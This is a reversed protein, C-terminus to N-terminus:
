PLGGSTSDVPRGFTRLMFYLALGGLILAVPAPLGYATAINGIFIGVVAVVLAYPLQTRVHDVHDCGSAMSSLVTTDSIPSCHDGFIAGALVSATAGLLIGFGPEGPHTVPGGLATTLPIVVPLMIAMTGWATGTAFATAASTVFVIAPILQLPVRESLILSLYEATGLTETVDGLSWAFVLIIMAVVMARIGAVGADIAEHVTLLKQGVSVAVAVLCGALSGWLLTDFPDAAGFVDMLSAEPGADTRGSTYLGVLVVLVVTLVPLGANRLRHSVGEKARMVTGTTDTALKANPRYLGNGANARREADVMPGFDRGMVSTLLVFFLALIPYFLYPITQVFVAFPSISLLAEAGAPNQDAAIRMGDGILSIEYGAWTSIPVLAAVPAATSDVLYALKERSILLRDTIPRMTNGVILTNAYDDFFIGMGAIWTALKGRRANRAFPAVAKVIGMTGGNKSVIGVMAGLLLSFIVIQPHGGDVDSVARVLFHDVLRWTGTIPNFGSIALAGLWVGVFLATIVERFVLALAIAVLPPLLSFWPPILSLNLEETWQGVQVTLPLDASSNVVLGSATSQAFFGVSGTALITGTASRVTYNAVPEAGGIVTLQFPVGNLVLDPREALGQASVLTPVSTLLLVATLRVLGM